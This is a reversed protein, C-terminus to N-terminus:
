EEDGKEKEKILSMQLVMIINPHTATYNILWLTDAYTKETGKSQQAAISGLATIMTAEVSIPYYHLTGVIQQM